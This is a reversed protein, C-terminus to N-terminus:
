QPASQAECAQRQIVEKQIQVEDHERLGIEGNPTRQAREEPDREKKERALAVVPAAAVSAGATAIGKFLSRRSISM